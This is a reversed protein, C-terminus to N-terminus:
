SQGLAPLTTNESSAEYSLANALTHRRIWFLANPWRQELAYYAARMRMHTELLTAYNSSYRLLPEPDADILMAAVAHGADRGMLLATLIGQSSLPDFSVAADGVAAWGPGTLHDLYATGADIMRPADNLRLGASALAGAVNPALTLRQRWASTTRAARPPLLDADTLFAFVRRRGPIPTTYWWGDPVAEVLTSADGAHEHSNALLWYTAVLRDLRTRRAGQSRAIRATRGTADVIARARIVPRQGDLIVQWSGGDRSCHVLRTGCRVPVAQTRLSHLLSADLAARDIHWGHGFPNIMFDTQQLDASGWASRNGYAARHRRWHLGAAGFLENLV